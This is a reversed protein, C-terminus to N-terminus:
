GTYIKFLLLTTYDCFEFREIKTDSASAMRVKLRELFTQTNAFSCLLLVFEM